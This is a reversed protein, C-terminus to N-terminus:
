KGKVRKKFWKLYFITLAVIFTAIGAILFANFAPIHILPQPGPSAVQTVNTAVTLLYKREYTRLRYFVDYFSIVVRVEYTGPEADERVLADVSIPIQAGPDVNGVYYADSDELIESQLKVEAHRLPAKGENILTASFTILSGNGAVSPTIQPKLLRISVFGEVVITSTLNVTYPRGSFDQFMIFFIIPYPGELVEPNATVNLDINLESTAPLVDIFRIPNVVGLGAYPTAAIVVLNYLPSNGSNVLKYKVTTVAKGAIVVNDLPAISIARFKSGIPLEVTLNLRQVSLWHDLFEVVINVNHIGEVADELVRVPIDVYVIDGRNVTGATPPQIPIPLGLYKSVDTVSGYYPISIKSSNNPIAIIADPLHLTIVLGSISPIEDNRLVVRLLGVDGKSPTINIWYAGVAKISGQIDSVHLLVDHTDISRIGYGGSLVIYDVILRAKYTGPKLNPALELNYTINLQQYQPIPGSYYAECSNRGSCTIGEPLELRAMISSISYPALNALKVSLTPNDGPYAPWRNSWNIEIPYLKLDRPFEEVKLPVNFREVKTLNANNYYTVYKTTLSAWYTGPTLLPDIDVYFRVLCSLGREVRDCFGNSGPYTLKIGKPLDISVTVGTAVDKGTNVFRMTLPLVRSGPLAIKPNAEDGWVVVIPELKAGLVDPDWVRVNVPLDKFFTVFMNDLRTVYKLLAKAVYTGPRISDALSLLARLSCTSHPPIGEFCNGSLASVEIGPPSVFNVEILDVPFRGWNALVLEFEEGRSGPFAMGYANAWRTSLVAVREEPEFVNLSINFVQSVRISSGQLNRFYSIILKFYHTGPKVGGEVDIGTVVATFTSGPALRGAITFNVRDEGYVSKFGKPLELVGTVGYVEDYGVNVLTLSLAANSTNPFIPVPENRGWYANTLELAELATPLISLTINLVQTVNTTIGYLDLQINLMITSNYIGYDVSTDVDIGRFRVEVLDGQTYRIDTSYTASSLGGSVIGKPLLITAYINRLSVDDWVRFYFLLDVQRSGSAVARRFGGETVWYHDVLVLPQTPIQSVYMPVYLTTTYEVGGIVVYTLRLEALYRGPRLGSSVNINPFDLTVADYRGLSVDLERHLVRYGESFSMMGDPLYLTAYLKSVESSGLYMLTVYYTVKSSGPYVKMPNLPTNWGYGVINFDTPIASLQTSHIVQYVFINFVIITILMLVYYM